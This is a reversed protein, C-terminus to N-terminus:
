AVAASGDNRTPSLVGNLLAWRSAETRNAVDLKRYINSLHFKITQETVWLEKAVEGNSHGEAVLRLIELERTTLRPATRVTRSGVADDDHNARAVFISSSFAQRVASVLDDPEATRVCFVRAGAGFAADIKADDASEGFVVTQVKPYLARARRITELVPEGDAIDVDVIVVDPARDALVELLQDVDAATAVIRIGAEGLLREFAGRWVPHRDLLVATRTM